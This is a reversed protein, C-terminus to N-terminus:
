TLLDQVKPEPLRIGLQENRKIRLLPTFSRTNTKIIANITLLAPCELVEM